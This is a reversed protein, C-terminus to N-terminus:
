RIANNSWLGIYGQWHPNAAVSPVLPTLRGSVLCQHHEGDPTGELEHSADTSNWGDPFDCSVYTGAARYGSRAWASTAPATSAAIAALLAVSTTLGMGKLMKM